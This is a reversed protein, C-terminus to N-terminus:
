APVLSVVAATVHPFSSYVWPLFPTAELQISVSARAGDALAWPHSTLLRLLTGVEATGILGVSFAVIGGGMRDAGPFQILRTYPYSKLSATYLLVTTAAAIFTYVVPAVARPEMGSVSAAFDSSIPTLMAGLVMGALLAGLVFSQRIVGTLLGWLITCAWLAILLLDLATM